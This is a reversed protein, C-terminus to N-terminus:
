SYFGASAGVWELDKNHDVGMMKGRGMRIITTVPLPEEIWIYMVRIEAQTMGHPTEIVPEFRVREQLIYQWREEAPIRDIQDRTPGIVVGLGAFSFLPKLVFEDLRSPLLRVDNLFSTGPVTYHRLFPITYKSLRFFWNPHGAWEVELDATLDFAPQVGTRLLEDVIVRNYIRRIPTRRGDRDYFLRRGEQNVRTVCVARVGLLRETATFDPLTKQSLPDIDLLVVNEPDRGNLVARELLARYGDFTLGSLLYNLGPDLEYADIYAQAFLPQFAYLSPFGQIEVLRPELRGDAGRALGFDAQVFLPHASEHPVRYGPPIIASSGALHHPNGLAQAILERGAAATEELLARPFFCPTESLRFKVPVGCAESVADRLSRYRDPTYRGNFARRLEPVM